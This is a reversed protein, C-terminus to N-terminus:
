YFLLDERRSRFEIVIAFFGLVARIERGRVHEGAVERVFLVASHLFWVHMAIINCVCM